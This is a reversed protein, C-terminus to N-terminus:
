DQRAFLADVSASQREANSLTRINLVDLSPLLTNLVDLSPLLTNLVDLSPLLTSLVDLSYYHTLSM